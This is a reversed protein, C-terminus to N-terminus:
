KATPPKPFQMKAVIDVLRKRLIKDEEEPTKNYTTGETVREALETSVVFVFGNKFFVLNGRKAVPPKSPTTFALQDAFMSGGPLLIYCFLAGDLYDAAYGASEIRADPCYRKFDAMVFSGFFYILYDKIGRTSLEWRQTADQTFAGITIQVGFNDKFIVLHETDRVRGGLEPLVPVAVKFANSPSTYVGAEVTGSLAPGPEQSEGSVAATALVLVSLARLM